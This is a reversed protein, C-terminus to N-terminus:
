LNTIINESILQNFRAIGIETKVHGYDVYGESDIVDVNISMVPIISLDGYQFNLLDLFLDDNLKLIERFRVYNSKLVRYTGFGHLDIVLDEMKQKGVTQAENKKLDVNVSAKMIEEFTKSVEKPTKKKAM